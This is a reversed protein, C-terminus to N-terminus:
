QFIFRFPPEMRTNDWLRAVAVSLKRKGTTLYRALYGDHEERFPSPMLMKINKGIVEDATYGFIREGAANFAHIIGHSTITIIADVVNELIAKHSLEQRQREQITALKSAAWTLNTENKKQKFCIFATVWIALLSLARNAIALVLTSGGPSLAFGVLTLVSSAIAMGLTLEWRPSRLTSTILLVYLVGCAVGLPIMLDIIFILFLLSLCGLLYSVSLAERAPVPHASRDWAIWSRQKTGNEM